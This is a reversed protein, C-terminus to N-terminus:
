RQEPLEAHTGLVLGANHVQAVLSDWLDRLEDPTRSRGTGKPGRWAAANFYDSPLDILPRPFWRGAARAPFFSFMGDVPDNLTAGRYLRLRAGIPACTGSVPGETNDALPGGTVDLFADPVWGRLATRAKSADYDVSDRVVLVTDLMWRQEGSVAKGSGFAIVSGQALHRLGRGRGRDKQGCNSYLFREGFIFPDTNHLGRYDKKPVYYPRWLYRPHQPDDDPPNLKSVIESEPEWEGWAYLNGAQRSGNTTSGSAACSCSSGGTTM